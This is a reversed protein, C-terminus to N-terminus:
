IESFKAFIKKRSFPGFNRLFFRSVLALGLKYVALGALDVSHARRREALEEARSLEHVLVRARTVVPGLAM